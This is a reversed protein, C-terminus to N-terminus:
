SVSFSLPASSHVPEYFRCLAPVLPFPAPSCPYSLPVAGREKDRTPPPLPSLLPWPHQTAPRRPGRLDLVFPGSPLFPFVFSENPHPFFFFSLPPLFFFRAATLSDFVSPVFCLRGFSFVGLLSGGVLFFFFPLSFSSSGDFKSNSAFGSAPPPPEILFSRLCPPCPSLERLCM